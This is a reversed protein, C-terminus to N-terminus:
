QKLVFINQQSDKTYQYPVTPHYTKHYNMKIM